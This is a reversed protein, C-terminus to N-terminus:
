WDGRAAACRELIAASMELNERIPSFFDPNRPLAAGGLVKGVFDRVSLDLPDAIRM